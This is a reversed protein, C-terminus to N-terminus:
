KFLQPCEDKFEAIVEKPEGKLFECPFKGDGGGKGSTGGPYTVQGRDNSM